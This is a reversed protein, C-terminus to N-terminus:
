PAGGDVVLPEAPQEPEVPEAVPVLRVATAAVGRALVVLLRSPLHGAGASVNDLPINRGTAPDTVLVRVRGSRRSLVAVRSVEGRPGVVLDGVRLGAVRVQRPTLGAAAVPAAGAVTSVSAGAALGGAVVTGLLARRASTSVQPM